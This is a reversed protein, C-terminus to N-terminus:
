KKPRDRKFLEFNRDLKSLERNQLKSFSQYFAFAQSMILKCSRLDYRDKFM